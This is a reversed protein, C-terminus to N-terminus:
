FCLSTPVIGFCVVLSEEMGFALVREIIVATLAAIHM